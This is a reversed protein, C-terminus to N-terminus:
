LNPGSAGGPDEALTIRWKPGGVARGRLWMEDRWRSAGVMADDPATEPMLIRISVGDEDWGIADTTRAAARAADTAAAAAEPSLHEHPLLEPTARLISLPRGYRRARAAERAVLWDMFWAALIGRDEILHPGPPVEAPADPPPQGRPSLLSRLPM